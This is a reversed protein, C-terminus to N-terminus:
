ADDNAVLHLAHERRPRGRFATATAQHFHPREQSATAILRFAKTADCAVSVEEDAYLADRGASSDALLLVMSADKRVMKRAAVLFKALEDQWHDRADRPTLGRYNREAGFEGEEFDRTGYGLWRLRLAHHDIYNYTAAYPPSSVILDADRFPASLADAQKVTATPPPSPLLAGFAKRRRILEETKKVFLRAPYGAAIRKREGLESSTDGRKRSLKVLISSLVLFLEERLDDDREDDIAQRLSDLELLTHPEFLAVDEHEFRRLAGAKKERRMDAFARIEGAVELFMEFGEESPVFTKLRALAVAIPNLDSGQANRGQALAEVLVTGSGAFPDLVTEGPKSYAEVLRRATVPHMRAPYSHFGHVHERAPDNEDETSPPVDLAHALLKGSEPDGALTTAGGVNTLARRRRPELEERPPVAPAREAPAHRPFARENRPGQAKSPRQPTKM